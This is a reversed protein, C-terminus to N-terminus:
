IWARVAGSLEGIGPTVPSTFLASRPCLKITILVIEIFVSADKAITPDFLYGAKHFGHAIVGVVHLQPRVMTSMTKSGPLHRPVKFSAMGMADIIITATSAFGILRGVSTNVSQLREHYYCQRDAHQSM